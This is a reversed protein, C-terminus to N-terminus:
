RLLHPQNHISRIYLFITGNTNLRDYGIGQYFAERSSLIPIDVIFNGIKMNRAVAREEKSYEVMPIIKNFLDLEVMAQLFIEVPVTVPSEILM